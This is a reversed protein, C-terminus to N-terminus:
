DINEFADNKLVDEGVTSHYLGFLGNDFPGGIEAAFVFKKRNVYAYGGQQSVHMKFAEAAVDIARKGGFSELPVTWDLYIQNEPYLHLYLKKLEFGGEAARNVAEVAGYATTCHNGHGYEGELDHTLVVDPCYTKYLDAIYSITEERDWYKFGETVGMSYRDRFHAVVPYQRYGAAWLGKLMEHLRLRNGCTMYCVVTSKGKEAAYYPIAGGMFIYEDDPHAVLVLLDAKEPTPEWMQIDSPLEGAGYVLLEVLSLREKEKGKTAIRFSAADELAVFQNAFAPTGEYVTQWKDNIQVQVLFDATMEGFHIYIGQSVQGKPLRVEVYAGVKENTRFTNVYNGNHLNEINGGGSQKYTCKKSLNPAPEALAPSVACLVFLMWLVAVWKKM